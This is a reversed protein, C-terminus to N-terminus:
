KGSRLAAGILDAGTKVYKKFESVSRISLARKLIYSLRLYFIRYADTLIKKAENRSYINWLPPDFAPDPDKAFERWVDKKVVGEKLAEKYLATAPFLTLLSFQVYDPDLEVALRITEQTRARDEEPCGIMFDALSVLGKKKMSRFVSRAQPIKIRKDLRKLVAENAAEVGFSIRRCGASKLEGMIEEDITDVRSRCSWSIKLKRKKIEGCLDMARRKNVTFTEDFIDFSKIGMALCQEIESIISSVSRHRWGTDQQFCFTCKFPCGRATMMTTVAADKDLISHYASPRVLTRDPFPLSDLDTESYSLDSKRVKGNEKYYLNPVRSFDGSGRIQGILETFAKEGDGAIVFDVEKFSVTEEPYITAHPGGLVVRAHPARRKAERATELADILSFTWCSIGAVDPSFAGVRDGIGKHDLKESVSDILLIECDKEHRKLYSAIYMIGLPPFCGENENVFDPLTTQISRLFPPYIFAVKM